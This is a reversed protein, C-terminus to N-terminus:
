TQSVCVRVKDVRRGGDVLVHQQGVPKCYALSEVRQLLGAVIGLCSTTKGVHQGTAAILIGRMQPASAARAAAAAAFASVAPLHSSHAAAM